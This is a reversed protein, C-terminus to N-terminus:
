KSSKKQRLWDFFREEPWTNIVSGSEAGGKRAAHVGYEAHDLGELDHADPGIVLLVGMSVARRVWRWDLDLRHPNANIEIATGHRLACRLVENLDVEYPERQLLLRGTPHGLFTTAPHEVARCIRRTMTEKDMKFRSHVSAVIFEFERLVEEEYDLSGDALIDSEIGKLM